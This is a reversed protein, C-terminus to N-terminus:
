PFVELSIKERVKGSFKKETHNNTCSEATIVLYSLQSGIPQRGLMARQPLFICIHFAIYTVIAKLLKM